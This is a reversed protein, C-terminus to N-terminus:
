NEWLLEGVFLVIKAQLVLAFHDVGLSCEVIQIQYFLMFFAIKTLSAHKKRRLDLLYQMLM